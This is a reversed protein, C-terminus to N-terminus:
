GKVGFEYVTVAEYVEGPELVTDPFEAHNPSDPFAQTELAVAGHQVYVKGQQGVISGDWYNATYVQMGPQDTFVKLYRGTHPDELIAVPGPGQSLVYNHDFGKDQLFDNIRKGIRTPVSFDAGTGALPLIRGTPVNHANKETYHAANVQLVHDTILPQEFGSLNFYSHNTFNVPTRKDTVATYTIVLQNQQNLVYQVKAQLNGPYGEEGDKSTYELVVGAQEGERILSDLAWVKTHFGNFGGHLHNNDNNVTLQIPQGDLMFRGGAIRNAFRGVVCGFYWPNNAYDAPQEFGAVINKLVGNRDPTYISMLTCGLNTIHVTINEHQLTILYLPAGHLTGCQKSTLAVTTSQRTNLSGTKHDTM